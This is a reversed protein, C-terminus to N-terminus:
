AQEAGLERLYAWPFIGRGHGDSFVLNLGQEGVPEAHHLRVTAAAEAVPKHARRLAVCAACRCSARLLGHALLSRGGDTWRIELMASAGHNTIAMPFAGRAPAAGPGFEGPLGSPSIRASM